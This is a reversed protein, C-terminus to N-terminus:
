KNIIGSSSKLKNNNSYKSGYTNISESSNHENRKQQLEKIKSQRALSAKIIDNNYNIM